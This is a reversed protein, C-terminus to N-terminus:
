RREHGSRKNGYLDYDTWLVTGLIRVSGITVVDNQLFHINEYGEAVRRLDYEM